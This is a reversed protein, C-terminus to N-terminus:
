QVRRLDIFSSLDEGIYFDILQGTEKDIILQKGESRMIIQWNGNNQGHAVNLRGEFIIADNRHMELFERIHQLLICTNM